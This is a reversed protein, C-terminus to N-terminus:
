PRLSDFVSETLEKNHEIADHCNVCAKVWENRDSLLEPDGKYHARKHKHATALTFSGLCDVKRMVMFNARGIECYDLGEKKAIVAIKKCASINARGVKGVRNMPKNMKLPSRKKFGGGRSMPKVKPRWPKSAKLPTRKM